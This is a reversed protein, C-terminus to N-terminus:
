RGEPLPAVTLTPAPHTGIRLFLAAMSRAMVRYNREPVLPAAPSDMIDEPSERATDIWRQWGSPAAQPPAPLEFELPEWYANFM